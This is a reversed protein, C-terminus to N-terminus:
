GLVEPLELLRCMGDGIPIEHPRDISRAEFLRPSDALEIPLAIETVRAPLHQGDAFAIAVIDDNGIEVEVYNALDAVCPLKVAIAPGLRIPRDHM